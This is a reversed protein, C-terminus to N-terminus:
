DPPVLSIFEEFKGSKRPIADVKTIIVDVPARLVSRVRETLGDVNVTAPDREGVWRVEVRDLDLQIVQASRHELFDWLKLDHPHPFMIRGGRFRFANRYRGLIRRLSPLTRGCAARESGAEALDGIEYRILPMAFNYLGTVIVRGIEGPRAITGDDRVIELHVAEASVHYEGCDPCEAALQGIEAAGYSDVIPVGFAADCLERAEQDVITGHSFLLDFRIPSGERMCVRALEKLGQSNAILYAPKRAALWTIQVDLDAELSLLHQISQPDASHWGPRLLGDPPGAGKEHCIRACPKSPDVGWWRMMREAMAQGALVAIQSRRYHLPTATSGSTAGEMTRGANSPVTESFLRDGSAAAEVRTVIPISAWAAEVQAPSTVDFDLRERYFGCADRAHTLLNSLLSLQYKRLREPPFRETEALTRGFGRILEGHDVAVLQLQM